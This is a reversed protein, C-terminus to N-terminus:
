FHFLIQSSGPSLFDVIARVTLDGSASDQKDPVHRIIINHPKRIRDLIELSDIHNTQLSAVDTSLIAAENQVDYISVKIDSVDTSLRSIHSKCDSLRPGQSSLM